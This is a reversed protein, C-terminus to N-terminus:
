KGMERLVAISREIRDLNDPTVEDEVVYWEVGGITECLEFARQWDVTGEGIIPNGPGRQGAEKVHITRSRGRYKAIMAHPDGGGDKGGDKYNGIDMQHVVEPVTADFFREWSAVGEILETDYGHAHYGIYLDLAKAKEAIANFEDAWAKNNAVTNRPLGGPVIMFKTGLTKHIEATREFNDGRFEGLGTHTGCCKLGNDDLMKRLDKIDKGFYNGGFFEVGEYGMKAIAALTGALDSQVAGRVSYLQVGIPIKNPTNNRRSQRRERLQQGIRTQGVALPSSAVALTSLAASQLFTRRNM